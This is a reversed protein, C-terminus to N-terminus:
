KKPQVYWTLKIETM